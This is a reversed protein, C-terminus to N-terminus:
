SKKLKKLNFQYIKQIFYLNIHNYKNFYNKSFCKTCFKIFKQLTLFDKIKIEIQLKGIGIQQMKFIITIIIVLRLCKHNLKDM